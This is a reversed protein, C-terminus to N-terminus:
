PTKVQVFRVLTKGAMSTLVLEGQELRYLRAGELAKFFMDEQGTPATMCPKGTPALPGVRIADETLHVVGNFNNCGGTGTIQALTLWHIQPEPSVLPTVGEIALAQWHTGVLTSASAAPRAKAAPAPLPPQQRPPDNPVACASLVLASAWAILSARSFLQSM